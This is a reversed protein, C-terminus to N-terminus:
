PRERVEHLGVVRVPQFIHQPAFPVGDGAQQDLGDHAIAEADGCVGFIKAGRAFQAVTVAHQQDDILYFGPEAHRAAAHLFEVAHVGVKACEGLRERVAVRQRHEGSAFFDHALDTLAHRMAAGVRRVRYAEGGGVACQLNQFVGVRHLADCIVAGPQTGAHVRDQRRAANGVTEDSMGGHAAQIEGFIRRAGVAVPFAAIVAEVVGHHLMQVVLEHQAFGVRALRPENRRRMVIGAEGFREAAELARHIQGDGGARAPPGKRV